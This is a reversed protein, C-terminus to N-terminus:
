SGLKVSIPDGVFTAASDFVKRVEGSLPDKIWINDIAHATDFDRKVVMQPVYGRKTTPWIIRNGEPRFELEVGTANTVATNGTEDTYIPIESRTVVAYSRSFLDLSKYLSIGSDLASLTEHEDADRGHVIRNRVDWFTRLASPVSQPLVHSLGDILSRVSPRRPKSGDDLDSWITNALKEIGSALQMLAVTPSKAATELTEHLFPDDARQTNATKIDSHLTRLNSLTEEATSTSARTTTPESSIPAPAPPAEDEVASVQRKLEKLSGELEIEQGLIKGKRLRDLLSRIQKENRIVVYGAVIPWLVSGIAQILTAIDGIMTPTAPEAM